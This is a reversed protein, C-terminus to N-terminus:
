ETVNLPGLVITNACGNSDVILLSPTYNGQVQYTHSVNAQSTSPSGDKFDWSYSTIPGDGLTSTSVFNVPLPSCGGNPSFTFNATPNSYVKIYDVKTIIQSTTGDSVTLSVTFRGISAYSASPNQLQSSNGNGFSWSWSTIAPNGTPTLVIGSLSGCGETINATFNANLQAKTTYSAVLCLFLIHIKKFRLTM